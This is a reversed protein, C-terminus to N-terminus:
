CRSGSRRSRQAGFVEIFVRFFFFFPPLIRPPWFVCAQATSKESPPSISLESLIPGILHMVLHTPGTGDADASRESTRSLRVHGHCIGSKANDLLLAGRSSDLDPPRTIRHPAQRLSDLPLLIHDVTMVGRATTSPVLASFSNHVSPLTPRFM